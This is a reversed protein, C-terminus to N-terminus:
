IFVVHTYPLNPLMLECLFMWKSGCGKALAGWVNNLSGIGKFVQGKQGVELLRLQGRLALAM